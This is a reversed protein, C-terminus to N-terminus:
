TKDYYFSYLCSVIPTFSSDMLCVSIGYSPFQRSANLTGDLPDIIWFYDIDQIDSLCSQNSEESIVKIGSINLKKTILESLDTDALSKIDRGVNQVVRVDSSYNSKLFCAASNVTELALNQLESINQM